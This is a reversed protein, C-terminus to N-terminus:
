FRLKEFFWKNKGANYKEEFVKRVEKRAEVRKTKDTLTEESVLNKLDADLAYRTPMMHQFNVVKLFPKIRSRKAMRKQGMSKTVRLPYKEIGAVIAHPYPRAETGDDFQKVIVAKKGAYKGSLLIVVKTPKLFKVM